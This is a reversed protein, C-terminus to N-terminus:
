LKLRALQDRVFAREGDPPPAGYAARYQADYDALRDASVAPALPATRLTGHARYYALHATVQEPLGRLTYGAVLMVPVDDVLMIPFRPLAAPSAPASPQSGGLLMPPHPSAEFAVRLVLFLGQQPDRALDHGAVYADLSALAGDHGAAVLANVAAIVPGPDYSAFAGGSAQQLLKDLNM